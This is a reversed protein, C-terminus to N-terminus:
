HAGCIIVLSDTDRTAVNISPDASNSTHTGTGGSAGSDAESDFEYIHVYADLLNCSTTTATIRITGASLTPSDLYFINAGLYRDGAYSLVAECGSIASPSENNGGQDWVISSLTGENPSVADEITYSVLILIKTTSSNLASYSIDIVGDGSNEYGTVHQKALYGM